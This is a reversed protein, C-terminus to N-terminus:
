PGLGGTRELAEGTMPVFVVSTIADARVEGGEKRILTLTQYYQTPGLPLILRGGEKLQELLPPPVHNVAATIMIADFPAAEPWGFYGDGHRVRVNGYEMERLREEATAALDEQIEITYVERVLEGLVAAQYGSGTGIELVKEEGTLGLAQTMLAVVYPQSITQGEGIPLPHDEYASGRLREEVFLHRPLRGMVELVRPDTIDRGKLDEEVMRLRAEKWEAPEPPFTRPFPEPPPPTETERSPLPGDAPPGKGGPAVEGGEWWGAALSLLVVVVGALVWKGQDM